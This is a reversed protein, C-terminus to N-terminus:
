AMKSLVAYGRPRRRVTEIRGPLRAKGLARRVVPPRAELGAAEVLAIATAANAAQHDGRARLTCRHVGGRLGEVTFQVAEDGSSHIRIVPRWPKARRRIVRMVAAPQPGTVVPVGPKIIGAKERAIQTLTRGLRGVHDFEVPTIACAAPTVVNTADLRGGLGTELVAVDVRRRAFIVFAAATMTEFFTPRLSKLLPEMRRMAWLFDARSVPVGDLRIRERMDVLHPSTYLGTRYGGERLIAEALHAVSGKGTTGAIHLSRFRREPHGLRAVLRKMRALNYRRATYPVSMREYDTFRTLYDVADRYSRLM